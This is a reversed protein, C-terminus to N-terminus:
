WRFEEFAVVNHTGGERVAIHRQSSSVDGSGDWGVVGRIPIVDIGDGPQAFFVRGGDFDDVATVKFFKASEVRRQQRILAHRNPLLNFNVVFHALRLFMPTPPLFLHRAPSRTHHRLLDCGYHGKEPLSLDISAHFLSHPDDFARQSSTLVANQQIDFPM